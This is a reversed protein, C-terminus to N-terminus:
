QWDFFTVIGYNRSVNGTTATASGQSYIVSMAPAIGVQMQDANSVAVGGPSFFDFCVVQSSITLDNFARHNPIPTSLRYYGNSNTMASVAFLGNLPLQGNCAPSIGPILPALSYQPQLTGFTILWTALQNAPAHNLDCYWTGGVKTELSQLQAIQNGSHPCGAPGTVRPSVYDARDLYYNFAAGGNNNAIIRFEVALNKGAVPTYPTSLTLWVMNGNPNPNSINGLDPLTYLAPGFVSTPPSFYNNDFNTLADAATRDTPGMLVQLQLSKGLSMTTGDQRFGIRTIPRGAPVGLDWTEYVAMIRSVGYAYPWNPSSFDGNLVTAHDSPFVATGQAPLLSCTLLSSLFLVRAFM